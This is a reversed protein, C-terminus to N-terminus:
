IFKGAQGKKEELVDWRKTLIREVGHLLEVFLVIEPDHKGGAKCRNGILNDRNSGASKIDTHNHEQDSGDDAPAGPKEKNGQQDPPESRLDLGEDIAIKVQKRDSKGNQQNAPKYRELIHKLKARSNRSAISHYDFKKLQIKWRYGTSVTPAFCKILLV